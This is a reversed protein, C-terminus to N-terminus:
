LDALNCMLLFLIYRCCIFCSYSCFLLFVFFDCFCDHFPLSDAVLHDCYQADGDV